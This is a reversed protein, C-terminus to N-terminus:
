IGEKREIIFNYTTADIGNPNEAVWVNYYNNNEEISRYDNYGKVEINKILNFNQYVPITMVGVDIVNTLKKSSIAPIAIMIRKTGKPISINTQSSALNGDGKNTAINRIFDNNIESLDNGIYMFWSRYGTIPNSTRSQTGSPIRVEPESANGLNDEAIVGIGYSAKATISYNTDEKVLISNFGGENKNIINGTTDTVTWSSAVIGTGTKPGFSYSGPNLSALFVPTVTHGVEYAGHTATLSVSPYSKIIPQEKKCLIEELVDMVSKKETKFTKTESSNKSLNGFQTYPGALTLDSPMIVKSADVNGDCAIWQEDYQYVSKVGLSNTILMMDGPNIEIGIPLQQILEDLNTSDSTIEYVNVDLTKLIDLSNFKNDIETKTYYNEKNNIKSSSFRRIVGDQEVLLKASDKLQNLEEVQPLIIHNEAM